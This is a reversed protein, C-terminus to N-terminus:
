HRWQDVEADLIPLKKMLRRHKSSMVFVDIGPVLILCIAFLVIVQLM